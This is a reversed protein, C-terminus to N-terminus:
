NYGDTFKLMTYQKTTTDFYGLISYDKFKMISELAIEKHKDMFSYIKDVALPQQKETTFGLKKDWISEFFVTKTQIDPYYFGDFSQNTAKSIGGITIFLNKKNKFVSIGMDLGALHQLFKATTKLEKPSYNDRQILLPSNKFLITDNKSVAISKLVEQSDLDKVDFLLEDENANIQYLKNEHYYSNSSRAGKKALSQVFDKEKIELNNLNIDFLQTKKVNQDLTLLIRDSLLYMKTKSITKPLPNYEGPEMKEIPNETLIQNFTQPQTKRDSFTFPSFDLVKEEVIGNKFVYLILKPETKDQTLFNFSNDKQYQTVIFQNKVPYEFKLAKSTKSEFYYKVIIINKAEESFWYLTPNGDESFSYGMLSRDEFYTAPGTFQDTLFLASNYKLVTFNGQYLVFVFVEHTSNNEFNLIQDNERIRKLDLPYTTLVTQSLLISNYLVALFLFIKRM